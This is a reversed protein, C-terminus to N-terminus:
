KAVIDGDENTWIKLFENGNSGNAFEFRWDITWWYTGDNLPKENVCAKLWVKKILVGGLIGTLKSLDQTGYITYGNATRVEEFKVVAGLTNYIDAEINALAAKMNPQPTEIWINTVNEGYEGTLVELRNGLDCIRNYYNLSHHRYIPYGASQSSGEDKEYDTPFIKNVEEWAQERSTVIM